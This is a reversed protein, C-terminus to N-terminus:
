TVVAGWQVREGRSVTGIDPYVRKTFLFSARDVVELVALRRVKRDREAAAAV